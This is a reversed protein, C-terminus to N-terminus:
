VATMDLWNQDTSFNDFRSLNFDASITMDNDDAARVLMDVTNSTDITDNSNNVSMRREFTRM